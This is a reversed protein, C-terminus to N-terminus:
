ITTTTTAATLAATSSRKRKDQDDEEDGLREEGDDYYGLGDLLCVTHSVPWSSCHRFSPFTGDDVVFDERQRRSNVLTQYESEEVIDYVDEEEKIEFDPEDEGMLRKRKDERFKALAAKNRSRSSM